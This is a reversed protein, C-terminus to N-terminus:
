LTIERTFTSIHLNFLPM